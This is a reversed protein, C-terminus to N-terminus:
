MPLYIFLYILLLLSILILAQIQVSPYDMSFILLVATILRRLVFFVSYVLSSKKSVDINEYFSEFKSKFASSSLKRKYTFLFVGVLIPLATALGGM